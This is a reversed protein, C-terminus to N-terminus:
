CPNKKLNAERQQEMRAVKQKALLAEEHRGLISFVKAKGEWSARELPWSASGLEYAALAEEYRRLQFLIDGKCKFIKAQDSGDSGGLQLCQEIAQLAEEYQELDFHAAALQRWFSPAPFALQVAHEASALAEDHLGLASLVVSYEEWARSEPNLALVRKFAERADQLYGLKYLLRGRQRWAKEFDPKLALARELAELAAQYRKLLSLTSSLQSWSTWDDPRERVIRELELKKLGEYPMFVADLPAFAIGRIKAEELRERLRDHVLYSGSGKPQFLLPAQAECEATVVLKTLRRTGTELDIWEESREWDIANDIWQPIWFFYPANILQGTQKEVLQAPYTTCPVAQRVLVDLFPHSCLMGTPVNLIYVYDLELCKLGMRFSLPSAARPTDRERALALCTRSDSALSSGHEIESDQPAVIMLHYM